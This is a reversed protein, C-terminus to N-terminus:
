LRTKRLQHVIDAEIDKPETTPAYRDVPVGKRNILFKTFNWKIGNTLSGHLTNQLFLFLPHGDKGNVNVKAFVEFDIKKQHLFEKIDTHTGPEQGGFQNCPFALISLGQKHYKSHLEQLQKYNSDTFGCQSAVNVILVVQGRYRDLPVLNGNMDHVGYDYITNLTKSNSIDEESLSANDSYNDSDVNVNNVSVSFISFPISNQLIQISTASARRVFSIVPNQSCSM